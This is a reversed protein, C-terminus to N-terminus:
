NVLANLLAALRIGARVLQEEILDFSADTTAESLIWTKGKFVPAADHCDSAVPMSVFNPVKPQLKGYLKTVAAAHADEIWSRVAASVDASVQSAATSKWNSIESTSRAKVLQRAIASDDTGLRDEIIARDWAAHFKTKVSPDGDDKVFKVYLCNGGRDQDTTDHLPQHIDGVLHALFELDSGPELEDPMRAKVTGFYKVIRAFATDPSAWLAGDKVASPKAGLDIFHWDNTQKYKTRAVADPWEAADSLADAVATKTNEVGLIRAVNAQATPTLQNAAIRALLRHGV